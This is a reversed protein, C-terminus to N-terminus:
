ILKSEPPIVEVRYYSVTGLSDVIALILEKRVRLAENVCQVLEDLDIRRGEILVKVYYKAPQGRKWGGREYLRFDVRSSGGKVVYGRSRLDRYVLYKVWLDPDSTVYTKLVKLFLEKDLVGREALYMVEVPLLLLENGLLEGYGQSYLRSILARDRVLLGSERFELTHM